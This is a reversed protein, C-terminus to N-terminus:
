AANARKYIYEERNPLDELYETVARRIMEENWNERKMVSFLNKLRPVDYYIDGTFRKLLHDNPFDDVLEQFLAVSDLDSLPELDDLQEPNLRALAEQFKENYKNPSSNQM